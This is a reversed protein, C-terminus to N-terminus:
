NLIEAFPKAFPIKTFLQYEPINEKCLTRSVVQVQLPIQLCFANAGSASTHMEAFSGAFSMITHIQYQSSIEKCVAQLVTEFQLSPQLCFTRQLGLNLQHKQLSVQLSSNKLESFIQVIKKAIM